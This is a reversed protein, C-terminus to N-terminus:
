FYYGQFKRRYKKDWHVVRRPYKIKYVNFLEGGHFKEAKV